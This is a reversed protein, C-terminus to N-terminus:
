DVRDVIAHRHKSLQEITDSEAVVHVTAWWAGRNKPNELCSYQFIYGNGEEPSRGLGLILGADRTDGANASSNKVVGDGPFAGM